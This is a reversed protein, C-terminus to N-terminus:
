RGGKQRDVWDVIESVAQVRTCDPQAPRDIIAIGLGLSMAADLKARSEDGGSNRLVLWDIKLARFTSIEDQVSFPPRGVLFRGNAFPFPENPTDIRRCILTQSGLNAFAGLKQTGTALFATCNAPILAAVDAEQAVHHWIEGEPEVWPPRLMQIHPVDSDRCVSAATKSMISAFPHTADIVADINEAKLYACFGDPGGFGGTRVPCSMAAPRRTVGALSAMLDLTPDDALAMAIRRADGTGALLLIKM